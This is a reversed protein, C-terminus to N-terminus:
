IPTDAPDILYRGQRALYGLMAKIATWRIM